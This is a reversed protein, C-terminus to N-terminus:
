AFHKSREVKGAVNIRWVRKNDSIWTIYADDTKGPKYEFAYTQYSNGDYWDNNLNTLGSIAEQFPGGKYANM